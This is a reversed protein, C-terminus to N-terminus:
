KRIAIKAGDTLGTKNGNVVIDGEQLGEKIAYYGEQLQGLTVERYAIHDNDVVFVYRQGAGPQKMVASEPVLLSKQEGLHINVYAYMGPRITEKTNPIEIEATFTHTMPDITPHVLAVFGEFTEGELADIRVNVPMKVKFKGFHEESVNIMLKVPKIQQVVLIPLQPSTVDGNDYNKDTIVGAIPSRLITNQLTNQYQTNAINYADRASEWQVQAIGGIKYLENLRDYDNKAKNMQVHLQNLQADDMRAVVQGRGVHDGVKVLIQKLRGGMLASINNKAYPEVNANFENNEDIIGKVVKATDIQHVAISDATRRIANDGNKQNCGTMVMCAVVIM